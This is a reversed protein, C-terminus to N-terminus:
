EEMRSTYKVNILDDFFPVLLDTVVEGLATARFRTREKQVYNRDVLTSIIAAYTSPRGIGEKELTKVLSAETFRPPPQTEHRDSRVGRDEVVEQVALAPLVAEEREAKEGKEGPEMKAESPVAGRSPWARRWGDFVPVRGKAEFV